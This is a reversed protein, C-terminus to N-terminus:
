DCKGEDRCGKYGGAAAGVAGGIVAGTAVSGGTIAGAAAGVGAGIAGGTVAGKETKNLNSCGATMLLAAAAITIAIRTM